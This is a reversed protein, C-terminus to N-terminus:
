IFFYNKNNKLVSVNVNLWLKKLRSTEQQEIQLSLDIPVIFNINFRFKLDTDLYKAIAKSLVNSKNQILSRLCLTNTFHYITKFQDISFVRNMLESIWNLRPAILVSDNNSFVDYPTISIRKITKLFSEGDFPNSFFYVANPTNILDNFIKTGDLTPNSSLYFFDSSIANCFKEHSQKAINGIVHSLKNIIYRNEELQFIKNEIVNKSKDFLEKKM